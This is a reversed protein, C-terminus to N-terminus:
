ALRRSASDLKDIRFGAQFHPPRCGAAIDLDRPTEETSASPKAGHPAEGPGGMASSSAHRVGLFVDDRRQGHASRRAHIPPCTHRIGGRARLHATM